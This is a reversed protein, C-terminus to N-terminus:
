GVLGPIVGYQSGMHDKTGHRIAEVREPTIRNSNLANLISQEKRIRAIAERIAKSKEQQKAEIVKQKRLKQLRERERQLEKKLIASESKKTPDGKTIIEGSNYHRNSNYTKNQRNKRFVM